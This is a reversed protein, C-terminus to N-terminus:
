EDKDKNELEIKEKETASLVKEQDEVKEESKQKARKQKYDKVEEVIFAGIVMFAAVVIASDAINFNFRWVGFFNIWDVVGQEGNMDLYAASYCLRDIVNGLAGALVMFLIARYFKGIKGWKLVAYVIIGVSVLIAIISFVIRNTAASGLSIGFAINENILYNIALFHPILVIGNAGQSLIYDKNAVVVNKTVIDIILLLLGLWIFSNFFWKCAKKFKEM